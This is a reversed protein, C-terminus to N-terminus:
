GSGPFGAPPAGGRLAGPPGFGNSGGGPFGGGPGGPGGGGLQSTSTSHGHAFADAVVVGGLAVAWIAAFLAALQRRSTM